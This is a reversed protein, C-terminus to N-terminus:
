TNFLFNSSFDGSKSESESDSDSSEVSSWPTGGTLEDTFTVTGKSRQSSGTTICDCGRITISAVDIAGFSGDASLKKSGKVSRFKSVVVKDSFVVM